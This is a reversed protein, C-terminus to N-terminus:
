AGPKAKKALALANECREINDKLGQQHEERRREQAGSGEPRQCDQRLEDLYAANAADLQAQAEEITIAM